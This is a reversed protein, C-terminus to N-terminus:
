LYKELFAPASARLRSALVHAAVGPALVPHREVVGSFGVYSLSRCYDTKTLRM